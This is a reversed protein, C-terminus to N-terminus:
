TQMIKLMTKGRRILIGNQEVVFSNCLGLWRKTTRRTVKEM